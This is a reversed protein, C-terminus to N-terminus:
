PSETEDRDANCDDTSCGGHQQQWERFKDMALPQLATWGIPWGMLWEVWDPNLQGGGGGAPSVQTNLRIQQGKAKREALSQNSWKRGDSANPTAWKVKAGLGPSKRALESPYNGDKWDRATPTPWMRSSVAEILTGGERGKRPTVRGGKAGLTATPTPWLDFRAMAGLTPRSAAGESASRNFRSGTDIAVPTPLFGSGSESTTLELTPREWCEGSRMSGSNPWIESFEDLGGLLSCQATRWLSTDPDWRAFSASWREGSDPASATSDTEAAPSPSIRALFDERFWTLMAEGRDATLLQLTLGFRSLRLADMPKGNRWFPQATPMVNLQAFPVGASSNAESYAEVLAQSFLWSVCPAGNTRCSYAPCERLRGCLIAASSTTYAVM